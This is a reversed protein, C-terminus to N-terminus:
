RLPYESLLHVKPYRAAVARHLQADATWLECSLISALAVYFADFIWKMGFEAAIVFARAALGAPAALEVPLNQLGFLLRQGDAVTVAGLQFRKYVASTVETIFHPPAVLQTDTVTADHLLATATTSGQESLLWKAGVSADVCVVATM